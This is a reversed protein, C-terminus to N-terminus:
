QAVTNYRRYICLRIYELGVMTLAAWIPSYVWTGAQQCKSGMSAMRLVARHHFGKLAKELCPTMVWTKSGFLIVAQIVAM